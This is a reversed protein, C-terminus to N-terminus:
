FWTYFAFLLLKLRAVSFGFNLGQTDNEYISVELCVKLQLGVLGQLYYSVGQVLGEVRLEGGSKIYTKVAKGGQSKVLRDLKLWIM